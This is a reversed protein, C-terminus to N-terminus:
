RIRSLLSTCAAGRHCGQFAPGTNRDLEKLDKSMSDAYTILMIKNEIKKM